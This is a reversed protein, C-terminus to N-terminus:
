LVSRDDGAGFAREIISFRDGICMRPGGGFPYYANQPRAGSRQPTFREPDFSEPNDWYLANRHTLQPSMVLASGGAIYFGCIQDDAIATRGIVWAPPRLRLGEDVVMRTYALRPLDVLTPRNSHLVSDVEKRLKHLSTLTCKASPGLPLAPALRVGAGPALVTAM